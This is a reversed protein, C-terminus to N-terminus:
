LSREFELVRQTFAVQNSRHAGATSTQALTLREGVTLGGWVGWELNDSKMGEELCGEKIPCARCIKRAEAIRTVMTKSFAQSPAGARTNETTDSYWLDPDPHYSCLGLM